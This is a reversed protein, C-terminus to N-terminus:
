VEEPATRDHATLFSSVLQRFRDPEEVHPMHSSDEFLEWRSGPLHAHLEGVVSPVVEDHRGSVILVPARVAPLRDVIDWSRLAGTMTFESPGVMARYVTPDTAMAELTTLVEAPVPTARCVHRRFFTRMADQYEVSDTTGAAEHREIASSSEPPLGSVLEAVAALYTRTSAFADAVVVSRLGVPGRVALELALMGGWSHGLLHFGSAIGLHHLLAELEAVFLEVTWFGPAADPLRGSRGNGFQDYFVTARHPDGAVSRLYDHTMGPGGHCVVLPYPPGAAGLDGVVRYWTRRGQRAVVGATGQGVGATM